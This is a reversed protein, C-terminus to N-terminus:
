AALDAPGTLHAALQRPGDPWHDIPFVASLWSILVVLLVYLSMSPIFTRLYRRTVRRQADSIPQRSM